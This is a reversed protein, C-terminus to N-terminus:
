NTTSRACTAHRRKRGSRGASVRLPLRFRRRSSFLRDFGGYKHTYVEGNRDKKGAARRECRGSVRAAARLLRRPVLPAAKALSTRRRPKAPTQLLQLQNVFMFLRRQASCRNPDFRRSPSIGSVALLRTQAGLDSVLARSECVSKLEMDVTLLPACLIESVCCPSCSFAKAPFGSSRDSKGLVYVPCCLDGITKGETQRSYLRWRM